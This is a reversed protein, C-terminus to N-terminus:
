KRGVWLAPLANLIPSHAHLLHPRERLVVESLRRILARMLQAEAPLANQKTQVQGTRYYPFGNIEEVSEVPGQWNKEHRPSTLALPRWGRQRQARLIEQSRFTYGSHLPLSHDLIHLITLPASSM